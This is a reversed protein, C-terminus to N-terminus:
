LMELARLIAEDEDTSSSSAGGVGMNALAITLSKKETGLFSDGDDDSSLSDPPTVAVKFGVTVIPSLLPPVVCSLSPTTPPVPSRPPESADGYTPSTPVSETRFPSRAATYFQVTPPSTSGATTEPFPAVTHTVALPEAAAPASIAPAPGGLAGCEYLFDACTRALDPKTGYNSSRGYVAAAFAATAGADGRLFDVLARQVPDPDATIPNTDTNCVVVDLEDPPLALCARQAEAIKSDKEFLVIALVVSVVAPGDLLGALTEGPCANAVADALSGGTWSSLARRLVGQSGPACEARITEYVTTSDVDPLVQTRKRTLLARQQRRGCKQHCAGARLLNRVFSKM